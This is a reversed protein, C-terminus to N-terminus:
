RENGAHLMDDIAAHCGASFMRLSLRDTGYPRAL